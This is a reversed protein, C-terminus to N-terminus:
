RADAFPLRAGAGTSLSYIWGFFVPSIVGAISAVSNNAGQQQGQERESVRQTMLSQLTPMALGWLANPLMALTFLWGNPALGMCAVGVAGGALGVVMTRWDGLRKVLPAM